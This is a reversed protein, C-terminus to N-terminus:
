IEGVNRGDINLKISHSSHNLSQPDLQRVSRSRGPHQLQHKVMSSSRRVTSRGRGHSSGTHEGMLNKDSLQSGLTRGSRQKPILKVSGQKNLLSRASFQKVISRSMATRRMSDSLKEMAETMADTVNKGTAATLSASSNNGDFGGAFLTKPSQREAAISVNGHLSAITPNTSVMKGYMIDPMNQVFGQQHAMNRGAGAVTQPGEPNHYSTGHISSSLGSQSSHFTSGMSHLQHPSADFERQSEHTSNFPFQQQQQMKPSTQLSQQHQSVVQQNVLHQGLQPQQGLRISGLEQPGLHIQDLHRQSLQQQYLQLNSQQVHHQQMLPQQSSSSFQLQRQRVDEVSVDAVQRQEFAGLTDERQLFTHDEQQFASAHQGPRQFPSSESTSHFHQESRYPSTEQHNQGFRIEIDKDQLQRSPPRIPETAVNTASVASTQQARSEWSGQASGRLESSSGGLVNNMVFEGSESFSGKNLGQDCDFSGFDGETISNNFSCSDRSGNLLIDQGGRSGGFSFDSKSNGFIENSDIKGTISNSDFDAVSEELLDKGDDGHEDSFLMVKRQGADMAPLITFASQYSVQSVGFPRDLLTKAGEHHLSCDKQESSPM